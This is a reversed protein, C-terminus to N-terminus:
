PPRFPGRQRHARTEDSRWTEFPCPATRRDDLVGGTRGGLRAPEADLDAETLFATDFPDDPRDTLHGALEAARERVVGLDRGFILAARIEPGPSKLFRDIDPRRRLIM